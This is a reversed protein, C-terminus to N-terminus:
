PCIRCTSFKRKTTCTSPGADDRLPATWLRYERSHSMTMGRALPLAAMRPPRANISAGAALMRKGSASSPGHIAPMLHLGSDPDRPRDAFLTAPEV